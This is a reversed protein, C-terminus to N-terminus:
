GTEVVWGRAAALDDFCRDCVWRDVPSAGVTAVYGRTLLAPHDQVFKAHRTSFRPDMFQASCVECYDHEWVENLARYPRGEFVAGDPLEQWLTGAPLFQEHAHGQPGDADTPM